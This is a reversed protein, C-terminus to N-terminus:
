AGEGDSRWRLRQVAGALGGPFLLVLLLIVGGLLARWYDTERAVLDQLWTFLAAGLLPGLLSQVGGLMVMVLGDVSRGVSAVEPSISGKSFAFLVGALGCFLGAVAFGGWQLARVDMGLSEARVAADRAARLALGFPAHIVRRLLYVGLAACGLALYYYALPAAVLESPRLGVLGNSGGTVDDWQFIAAWVIQAFALTLMALYVGSLRVCFWGFLVAAAMATLAGALMALPMPWQWQLSVLAAGYAGLGFYAAHGFSVMGGPGLLFHLSAAFLVAILIEVMLVPLYPLRGALLPLALLVLMLALGALRAGRSSQRLPAQQAASSRVLALPKGLLGWPRLVLIAAMVLFEVVLTLRSLSIDLGFWSVHGLAICLAKVEAILLAAAFAGGLSGMGGVVVVVFANGITDLDLALNAPIRPGQLAGGLGALFCGLAFVATFLWAQNVGLAGLMERDQTAARILTGWRTRNLLLWLLAFVLPGIFILLLDYQPLRRGLLHVAGALGPARPGFLDEPGWAWLVADKIVLVLAFTALLQFLEPARYIRRLVLVEVLAGLAAVTLASLLVAAWFGLASAGLRDVLSYAVYLGLMYFSGHAFNVIRTVGFILSLGAAVLFMASADALGNLLQVTLSALTM